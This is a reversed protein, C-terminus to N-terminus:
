RHMEPQYVIRAVFSAVGLAAAGARLAISLAPRDALMGLGELLVAGIDLALLLVALAILRVSWAKHLVSKWNTILTIM